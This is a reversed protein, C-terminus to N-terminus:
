ITFVQGHFPGGPTLNKVHMNSRVDNSNRWGFNAHYYMQPILRNNHSVADEFGFASPEM